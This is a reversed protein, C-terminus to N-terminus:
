NWRWRTLFIPIRDIRLSPANMPRWDSTPSLGTNSAACNGNRFANSLSQCFIRASSSSTSCSRALRGANWWIEGSWFFIERSSRQFVKM